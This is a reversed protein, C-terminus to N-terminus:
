KINASLWATDEARRTYQWRLTADMFQEVYLMGASDIAIEDYYQLVAMLRQRHAPTLLASDTKFNGEERKLPQYPALIVGDARAAHWVRNFLGTDAITFTHGDYTSLFSGHARYEAHLGKEDMVAVFFQTSTKVPAVPKAENLEKIFVAREAEPVEYNITQGVKRITVSTNGNDNFIYLGQPPAPKKDHTQCGMVFLLALLTFHKM